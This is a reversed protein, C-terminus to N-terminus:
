KIHLMKYTIYESYTDFDNSIYAIILAKCTSQVICFKDGSIILSPNLYDFHFNLPTPTELEVYCNQFIIQKFVM